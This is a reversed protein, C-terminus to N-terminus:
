VLAPEIFQLTGAVADWLKAFAAAMTTNPTSFSLGLVARLGPVPVLYQLEFTPVAAEDGGDVLELRRRREVRVADGARPLRVVSVDPAAQGPPSPELQMRLALFDADAHDMDTDLDRAFILLTCAIAREGRVAQFAYLEIGGNARAAVLADRVLRHADDVEGAFRRTLGVAEIAQDVGAQGGRELGDLATSRWAVPTRLRYAV